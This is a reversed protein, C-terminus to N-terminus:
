GFYIQSFHLISFKFYNLNGILNIGYLKYLHVSNSLFKLPKKGRINFFPNYYNIGVLVVDKNRNLMNTLEFVLLLGTHKQLLKMTLDSDICKIYFLIETEERWKKQQHSWM